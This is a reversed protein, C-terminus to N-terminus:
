SAVCVCFKLVGVSTSLSYVCASVKVSTCMLAASQSMETDDDLAIEKCHADTPTLQSASTNVSPQTRRRSASAACCDDAM